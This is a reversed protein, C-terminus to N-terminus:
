QFMVMLLVIVIAIAVLLAVIGTLVAARCSM